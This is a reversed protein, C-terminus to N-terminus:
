KLAAVRRIADPSGLLVLVDGSAPADAAGPNIRTAGRSRVALVTLGYRNRLDIERLTRGAFSEPAEIEALVADGFRMEALIGPYALRAALQRALDEEPNLM